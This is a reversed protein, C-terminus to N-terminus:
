MLGNDNIIFIGYGSKILREKESHNNIYKIIDANMFFRLNDLNESELKLVNNNKSNIYTMKVNLNTGTDAIFFGIDDLNASKLKIVDDDNKIYIVPTMGMERVSAVLKKLIDKDVLEPRITIADAGFARLLYIQYEDIIFDNAMVPMDKHLSKFFSMNDLDGNLITEDTDIIVASINSLDLNEMDDTSNLHLIYNIENKGFEENLDQPYIFATELGMEMIKIPIDKKKYELYKKKLDIINNM